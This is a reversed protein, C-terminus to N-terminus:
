RAGITRAVVDYGCASYGAIDLWNDKKEPSWALRSIKLLNMLIAVDHGDLLNRLTEALLPHSELDTGYKRELVGMIHQNWYNATRKFDATPDGYDVNRDGNVAADAGQLLDKRHNPQSKAAYPDTMGQISGASEM